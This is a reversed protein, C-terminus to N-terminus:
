TGLYECWICVPGDYTGDTGPWTSPPTTYSYTGNAMITQGLALTNSKAIHAQFNNPVFVLWYDDAPNTGSLGTSPLGPNEVSGGAPITFPQSVWLVTGPVAGGADDAHAIIKGSAGATTDARFRVFIDTVEGANSKNFKSALARDAGGPFGDDPGVTASFGFEMLTGGTALKQQAIVSALISM